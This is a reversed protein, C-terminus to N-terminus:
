IDTNNTASLDQLLKTKNTQKKTKNKKRKASQQKVELDDPLFCM